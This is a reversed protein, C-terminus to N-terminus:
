EKFQKQAGLVMDKMANNVDFQQLNQLKKLITIILSKKIKSTVENDQRELQNTISEKNRNKKSNSIRFDKKLSPNSKTVDPAPLALLGGKASRGGLSAQSQATTQQQDQDSQAIQLLQNLAITIFKLIFEQCAVEDLFRSCIMIFPVSAAGANCVDNLYLRALLDLIQISNTLNM